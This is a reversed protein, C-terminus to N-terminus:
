KLLEQIIDDYTDGKKGRKDLENKTKESVAITTLQKLNEKKYLEGTVKALIWDPAHSKMVEVKIENGEKEAFVDIRGETVTKEYTVNFGLKTLAEGITKKIFFHLDSETLHKQIM